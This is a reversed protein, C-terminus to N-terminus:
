RECVVVTIRQGEFGMAQIFAKVDKTRPKDFNFGDVVILEGDGLKGSLVGRM